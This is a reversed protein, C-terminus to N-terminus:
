PVPNARLNPSADEIIKMIDEESTAARVYTVRVDGTTGRTWSVEVESIGKMDKFANKIPVACGDHWIGSVLLRTVFYPDEGSVTGVVLAEFRPVAAMIAGCLQTPSISSADYRVESIGKGPGATRTNVSHVGPISKLAGAILVGCAPFYGDIAITATAGGRPGGACSTLLLLLAASKRM